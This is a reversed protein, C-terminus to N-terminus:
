CVTSSGRTAFSKFSVEITPSEKTEYAWYYVMRRSLGMRAFESDLKHLYHSGKALVAVLKENPRGKVMTQLTAQAMGQSPVGFLIGGRARSLMTRKLNDRCLSVLMEKLVIGGLSHALFVLPKMESSQWGAPMLHNVLTTAVEPISQFSYSNVLTTDYGYLIARVHPLHKPLTDRIWMYTKDNGKPQWSGFPHSALGSIVICSYSAHSTLMPGQGM